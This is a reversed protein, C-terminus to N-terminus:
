APAGISRAYENLFQMNRYALPIVDEANEPDSDPTFDLDPAPHETGEQKLDRGTLACGWAAATICRTVREFQGVSEALEQAGGYGIELLCIEWSYMRLMKM